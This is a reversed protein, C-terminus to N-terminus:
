LFISVWLAQSFAMVAILHTAADHPSPTFVRAAREAWVGESGKCLQLGRLSRSGDAKSCHAAGHSWLTRSPVPDAKSELPRCTGPLKIDERGEWPLGNHHSHPSCRSSLSVRLYWRGELAGYPNLCVKPSLRFAVQAQGGGGGPGVGGGGQLNRRPASRECLLQMTVFGQRLTQKRSSGVKSPLFPLFSESFFPCLRPTSAALLFAKPM